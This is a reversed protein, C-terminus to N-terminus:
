AGRSRGAPGDGANVLNLEVQEQIIGAVHGKVRLELLVESFFFAGRKEGDPAPVIREKKGEPAFPTKRAVIWVRLNVEVVGAMKASSVWAFSIPDSTRLKRLFFRMTIEIPLAAGGPALKYNVCCWEPPRFIVSITMAILSGRIMLSYTSALLRCSRFDM